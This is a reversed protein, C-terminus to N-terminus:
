FMTLERSNDGRGVVSTKVGDIGSTNSRTQRIEAQGM